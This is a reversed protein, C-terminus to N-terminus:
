MFLRLVLATLLHKGSIRPALFGVHKVILGGLCHAVFVIPRRPDVRRRELKLYNLLSRANDRITAASQNRFMDGNYAFSMVRTQPLEEPLLDRPWVKGSKEDQWTRIPDGDLGHVLM